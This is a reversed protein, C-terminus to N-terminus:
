AVPAVKGKPQNYLWVLSFGIVSTIATLFSGWLIDVVTVLLPWDELVAQNSLDYTGYAVLGLLAGLLAARRGKGNRLAPLVAFIFIGAVYMVYFVVAALWNVGEAMLHGIQSRYFEPMVVGLWLFDLVLFAAITGAYPVGLKM